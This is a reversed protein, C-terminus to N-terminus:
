EYIPTGWRGTELAEWYRRSICATLPGMEGAGIRRGDVEAIWNIGGATSSYFAEDANYIDYATLQGIVTPIGEEAALTLVNERTIGLLINEGATYLTGGRALFLNYTSGEAVYGDLGLSIADDAGAANAEVRMLVQNLYNLNKIKPDLCEPPIRRISSIKVKLGANEKGAGIFSLYPRVFIVVSPRCGRPDLLPENSVGRSVVCKIYARRLGSRRVTELLAEALENKSLPVQLAIAQASRFLRDVHERLSVVYGGWACWTEFVGDGYLFAHDFVSIKAEARAYYEGDIYVAPEPSTRTQESV